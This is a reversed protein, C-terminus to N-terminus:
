LTSNVIVPKNSFVISCGAPPTGIDILELEGANRHSFKASKIARGSATYVTYYTSQFSAGSIMALRHATQQIRAKFIGDKIAPTVQDIGVILVNDTLEQKVQANGCLASLLVISITIITKM